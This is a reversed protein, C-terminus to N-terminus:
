GSVLGASLTRAVSAIFADLDGDHGQRHEFLGFSANLTTVGAEVFSLMARLREEPVGPYDQQLAAMMRDAIFDLKSFSSRVIELEYSVASKSLLDWYIKMPSEPSSLRILFFWLYFEWLQSPCAPDQRRTEPFHREFDARVEPIRREVTERFLEEKSAFYYAMLGTGLGAHKFIDRVSAGHFGRESFLQEAADLIRDRTAQPTPKPM